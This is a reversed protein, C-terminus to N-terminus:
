MKVNEEEDYVIIDDKNIKELNVNIRSLRVIEYVILVIIVIQISFLGITKIKFANYLKMCEDVYHEKKTKEILGKFGIEYITNTNPNDEGYKEIYITEFKEEIYTSDYKIRIGIFIMTSILSFFMIISLVIMLRRKNKVIINVILFFISIFGIVILYYHIYKNKVDVIPDEIDVSKYTAKYLIYVIILFIAVFFFTMVKSKIEIIYKELKEKEKAKKEEKERIDTEEILGM